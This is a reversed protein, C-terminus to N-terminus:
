GTTATNPPVDVLEVTISSVTLPVAGCTWLRVEVPFGLQPGGGIRFLLEHKPSEYDEARLERQALYTSGSRSVAEITAVPRGEPFAQLPRGANWSIRVRYDGAGLKVFPGYVLHGAQEPKACVGAHNREGASGVTMLPLWEVAVGCIV